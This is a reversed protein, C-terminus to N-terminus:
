KGRLTLISDRIQNLQSSREGKPFLPKGIRVECFFPVPLFEGKPLSRWMNGLYVPVIPVDPYKEIIHVIGSHFNGIEGTVSRTGEPFFILVQNSDLAQKLPALPDSHKSVVKREISLINFLLHSIFSTFWNREFYDSAAVPRVNNLEDLPFIDLLSIADLHSAHNSVIIYPKEKPLNERDYVRLGIFLIM